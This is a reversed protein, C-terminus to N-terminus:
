ANNYVKLVTERLPSGSDSNIFELIAALQEPKVWNSPDADPMGKRNIATDITSPVVVTASVNTGKNEEEFIIQTLVSRTIDEGTKADHVIFDHGQKVMQCLHDLTVYSSTATNYLRRNAYKKITIPAKEAAAAPEAMLEKGLHICRLMAPSQSAKALLSARSHQLAVLRM